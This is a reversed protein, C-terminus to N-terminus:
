SITVTGLMPINSDNWIETLSIDAASGNLTVGTVNIVGDVAVIAATVRALYVIVNYQVTYGIVEDGWSEIVESLYEAIADEVAQEDTPGGRGAEWTITCAVNVTVQSPADIKVRAGIPAVGYGDSSPSYYPPCIITQVEQILEASAPDGNDDLIYCDVYGPRPTYDGTCNPYVQVAGVGPIQLIAQRYAAINGAFAIAKLGEDYRARLSADTEEDAGVTIITGITASALGSIATIPLIAGTYSNGIIGPTECTLEYVGASIEDGSVFVVSNEGNITKFRSKIPITVPDSNADLFTGQRVAPTAPIREIGRTKAVLDLAEGQATDSYANKQLMDLLLYMGELWWAGPAVATQVMSGERTDINPDVQQLMDSEIKAKTYGSFDIM